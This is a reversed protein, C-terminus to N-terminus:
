HSVKRVCADTGAPRVSVHEQRTTATVEMAVSASSWVTRVMSVMLVSQFMCMCWQCMQPMMKM